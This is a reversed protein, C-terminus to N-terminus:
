GAWEGDSKLEQHPLQELTVSHPPLVGNWIHSMPDLLKQCFPGEKRQRLLSRQGIVLSKTLESTGTSSILPLGAKMAQKLACKMALELWDEVNGAKHNATWSTVSNELEM